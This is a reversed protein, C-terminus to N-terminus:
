LAASVPLIKFSGSALSGTSAARFFFFFYCVDGTATSKRAASPVTDERARVLRSGSKWPAATRPVIPGKM